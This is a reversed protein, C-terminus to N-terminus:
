EVDELDESDNGEPHNILDDLQNLTDIPIIESEEDKRLLIRGSNTIWCFKIKRGQAFKKAQGLLFKKNPPLQRVVSIKSKSAQPYLDTSWVQFNKAKWFSRVTQMFQESSNAQAFEVIIHPPRKNNKQKSGTTRYCKVVEQLKLDYGVMKSITTLVKFPAEQEIVPVNQIEVNCCRSHFELSGLRSELDTVRKRLLRNEKKLKKHEDQIVALTRDAVVTAVREILAGIWAPEKFPFPSSTEQVNTKM